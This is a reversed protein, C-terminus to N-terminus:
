DFEYERIWYALGPNWSELRVADIRSYFYQGQGQQQFTKRYLGVVKIFDGEVVPVEGPVYVDIGIGRKDALLFKTYMRQVGGENIELPVSELHWIKGIVSVGSMDYADPSALITAISVEQAPLATDPDQWTHSCAAALLLTTALTLVSLTKGM